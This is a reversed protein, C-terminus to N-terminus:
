VTMGQGAQKTLSQSKLLVPVESDAHLEKTAPKPDARPQEEPEYDLDLREVLFAALGYVSLLVSFCQVVAQTATQVCFVYSYSTIMLSFFAEAGKEEDFVELVVRDLLGRHVSEDLAKKFSGLNGLQKTTSRTVVFTLCAAFKYNRSVLLSFITNIDLLVDLAMFFMKIKLADMDFCHKQEWQVKTLTPLKHQVAQLGDSALQRALTPGPENGHETATATHCCAGRVGQVLLAMIYVLLCFVQLLLFYSSIELASVRPLSEAQATYEKPWLPLAEIDDSLTRSYWVQMTTGIDSVLPNIPRCIWNLDSEQHKARWALCFCEPVVLGVLVFSRLMSLWSRNQPSAIALAPVQVVQLLGYQCAAPFVFAVALVALWVPWWVIIMAMGGLLSGNVMVELARFALKLGKCKTRAKAVQIRASRLFNSPEGDEDTPLPVHQGRQASKAFAEVAVAVFAVALTAAPVAYTLPEWVAMSLKEGFSMSRLACARATNATDPLEAVKHYALFGTAWSVKCGYRRLSWNFEKANVDAGADLLVQITKEHGNSAAGHLPTRGYKEKANADAGANVLIQLRGLVDAGADLLVQITKEHGNSAAGHLPTRGYKEVDFPKDVPFPLVALTKHIFRFLSEEVRYLGAAKWRRLDKANADAGANVLIQLRGLVKGSLM